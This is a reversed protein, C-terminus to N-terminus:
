IELELAAWRVQTVRGVNAAVVSDSPLNRAAVPNASEDSQSPPAKPLSARLKFTADPHPQNTYANAISLIAPQV